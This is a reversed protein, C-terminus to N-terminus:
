PRRSEAQATASAARGGEVAVGLYRDWWKLEHYYRHVTNWPTWGGHYSDPYRIMMAPVRRKKLATYM